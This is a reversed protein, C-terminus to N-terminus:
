FFPVVQFVESFSGLRPLMACVHLSSAAAAPWQERGGPGSVESVELWGSRVETLLFSLNTYWGVSRFIGKRRSVLLLEARQLVM